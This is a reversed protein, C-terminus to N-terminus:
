VQWWWWVAGKKLLKELKTLNRDSTNKHLQAHLGDTKVVGVRVPCPFPLAAM